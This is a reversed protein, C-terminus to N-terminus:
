VNPLEISLLSLSSQASAPASVPPSMSLSAVIVTSTTSLMVHFAGTLLIFRRSKVPFEVKFM